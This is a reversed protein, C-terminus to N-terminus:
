SKPSSSAKGSRNANAFVKLAVTSSTIVMDWPGNALERAITVATAYDGHANFRRVNSGGAAYFGHQQLGSIVGAVHADLLTTSSIQMIAIQPLDGRRTATRGQRQQLDSLLLMLTALLILGVALWLDKILKM